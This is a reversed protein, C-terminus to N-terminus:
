AAGDLGLWSCRTSAPWSGSVPDSSRRLPETAPKSTVNEAGFLALTRNPMPSGAICAVIRSACLSGDRAREGVELSATETARRPAPPRRLISAAVAQRGGREEMPGAARAVRLEVGVDDDGVQDLARVAPPGGEVPPEDVGVRAGRAVEVLRRQALLERAAEADPPPGDALAHGLDVAHRLLRQARERAAADLDLLRHRAM